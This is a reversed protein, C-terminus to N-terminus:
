SMVPLSVFVELGGLEKSRSLRVDGHAADVCAKVISLGLGYGKVRKAVSSKFFPEFVNPIQEEAVGPGDDSISLELNKGSLKGNVVVRSKSYKIANEMLNTLISTLLEQQFKVQIDKLRVDISKRIEPHLKALDSRIQHVFDPISIQVKTTEREMREVDAFALLRGTIQQLRESHGCITKLIAEYEEPTRKRRLALEAEGHIVTLPTRLEHSANTAFKRLGLFSTELRELLSNFSKVLLSFEDNKEPVDFRFSLQKVDLERTIEVLKRFPQLLLKALFWSLPVSLLFGVICGLWLVNFLTSLHKKVSALDQYALVDIQSGDIKREEHQFIKSEDKPIPENPNLISVSKPFTDNIIVGDKWIRHYIDNTTLTDKHGNGHEKFFSLHRLEHEVHQSLTQKVGVFTQQKVRTFVVWSFFVLFLSLIFSFAVAFRLKLDMISTKEKLACFCLVPEGLPM